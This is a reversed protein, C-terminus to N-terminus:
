SQNLRAILREPRTIRQDIKIVAIVARQRRPRWRAKASREVHLRAALDHFQRKHERARNPPSPDLHPKANRATPM